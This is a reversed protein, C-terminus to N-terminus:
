KVAIYILFSLAISCIALASLVSAIQFYIFKGYAIKANTIIQEALHGIFKDSNTPVNPATESLLESPTLHMIHGFYLINNITAKKEMWLFGIVETSLIPFFSLLSVLASIFILPFFIFVLTFSIYSPAHDLLSISGFLMAANFTILAANKAEGFKLWDNVNAFLFRLRDELM